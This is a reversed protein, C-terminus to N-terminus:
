VSPRINLHGPGSALTHRRYIPRELSIKRALRNPVSGAMDQAFYLSTDHTM